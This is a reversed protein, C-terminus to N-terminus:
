IAAPKLCFGKPVYTQHGISHSNLITRDSGGIWVNYGCPRTASPGSATTSISWTGTRGGDSLTGPYSRHNIGLGDVDVSIGNAGPTVYISFGAPYADLFRYTGSITDGAKFDGCDGVGSTIVIDADPASPDVKIVTIASGPLLNGVGDKAEMRVRYEGAQAAHFSGLYGGVVEVTSSGLFDLWGDADPILTPSTLTGLTDITIRQNRLLPQEAAGPETVLFRYKAGSGALFLNGVLEINGYFPSDKAGVLSTAGNTTALGGSTIDDVEMGGVKELKMMAVGPIVGSPLPKVEVTCDERDGWHAHHEPTDPPPPTNWSLIARVKAKGVRCWRQRHADLNVGLSVDYFLGRDPDRPINHVTTSSTGMYEWGTGFDMYFAVYEQSGADCLGSVYGSDRKVEVTAHLRNLERNLSVCHVEEYSTNFDLEFIPQLLEGLNIGPYLKVMETHPMKAAALALGVSYALRQDAKIKAPTALALIPKPEPIPWKVPIDFVPKWKLPIDKELLAGPKVVKVEDLLGSFWCFWDNRPAIQIDAEHRGGWVPIHDPDGAPPPTNWSLIARVRPLVPKGDCCSRMNPALPWQVDYCLDDEFAHDYVGISALGEDVWTGDNRYDLFFRVYEVSGGVCPTGSYGSAKKLQITAHLLQRAPDYSVCEIDEFYTNGDFDPLVPAFQAALAKDKLTGYYNPNTLLHLHHNRRLLLMQEAAMPIKKM